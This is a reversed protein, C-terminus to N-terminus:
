KTSKMGIEEFSFNKAIRFKSLLNNGAGIPAHTHTHPPPTIAPTRIGEVLLFTDERGAPTTASNQGRVGIPAHPPPNNSATQKRRGDPFSNERGATPSYRYVYSM